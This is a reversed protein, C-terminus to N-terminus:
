LNINLSFSSTFLGLHIHHSKYKGHLLENDYRYLLYLDFTSLVKLFSFSFEPSIGNVSRFNTFGSLGISFYNLFAQLEFLQRYGYRFINQVEGKLTYTYGAFIYSYPYNKFVSKSGFSILPIEKSITFNKASNSFQVGFSPLLWFSGGLCCTYFYSSFESQKAALLQIEQYPITLIFKESQIQTNDELESLIYFDYDGPKDLLKSVDLVLFIKDTLTDSATFTGLSSINVQSKAKLNTMWSLVLKSPENTRVYNDILYLEFEEKQAFILNNHNSIFNHILITILILLGQKVM